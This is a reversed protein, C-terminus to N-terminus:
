EKQAILVTENQKLGKHNDAVSNFERRDVKFGVKSLRDILGEVSYIRVHDNQGFHLLRDEPTQILDNEFIEGSVRCSMRVDPVTARHLYLRMIIIEGPDSTRPNM